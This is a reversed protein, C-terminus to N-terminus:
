HCRFYHHAAWVQKTNGILLLHTKQYVM